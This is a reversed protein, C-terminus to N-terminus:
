EGRNKSKDRKHLQSGDDDKGVRSGFGGQPRPPRKLGPALIEPPLDEVSEEKRSEIESLGTSKSDVPAVRQGGWADVRESIIPFKIDGINDIARVLLVVIAIECGLTGVLFISLAIDVMM